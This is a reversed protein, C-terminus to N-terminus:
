DGLWSNDDETAKKAASIMSNLHSLNTRDYVGIVGGRSGRDCHWAEGIPMPRAGYRNSKWVGEEPAIKCGDVVRLDDISVVSTYCVNGSYILAVLNEPKYEDEWEKVPTISYDPMFSM